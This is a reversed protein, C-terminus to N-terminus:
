EYLYIHSFFKDIEGWVFQKLEEYIKHLTVTSIKRMSPNLIEPNSKWIVLVVNHQEPFFSEWEALHM